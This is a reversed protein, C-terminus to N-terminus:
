VEKVIHEIKESILTETCYGGAYNYDCESCRIEDHETCDFNLIQEIKELKQMDSIAKEIACRRAAFIGYDRQAELSSIADERSIESM